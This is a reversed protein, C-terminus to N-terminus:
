KVEGKRNNPFIITITVGNNPQSDLVFQFNGNYYLELREYVNKIGVSSHIPEPNTLSTRLNELQAKAIGKGNDAIQIVCQNEYKRAHIEISNNQREYDIGHLFYNEVLPQLIFKPVIWAETEASQEFSFDVITPYRMKYLYAYKECFILEKKLTTEKEQVISGRLLSSFSFVVNALEKAGINVAYMRIYELTNYLFHPNIQSQLARMNADKQENELRYNSAIYENVSDMMQNIGEAIQWLEFEKDKKEIRMTLDTTSVNTLFTLIDNVSRQYHTLLLYILLILGASIVISVIWLFSLNKAIMVYLQKKSITGTLVLDGVSQEFSVTNESVQKQKTPPNQYLIQQSSESLVKVKIPLENEYSKLVEDYRKRQFTARFTGIPDGSIESYFLKTFTVNKSQKIFNDVIKGGRNAVDSYFIAPSNDFTFSLNTLWPNNLYLNKIEQPLFYYSNPGKQASKALAYELYDPTSLDFYKQASTVKEESGLVKDTMWTTLQSDESFVDALHQIAQQMAAIEKTYSNKALNYSLGTTFLLIVSGIVVAYWKIIRVLSNGATSKKM